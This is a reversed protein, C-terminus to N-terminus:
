VQPDVDNLLAFLIRVLSEDAPRTPVTYVLSVEEETLLPPLGNGIVLQPDMHFIRLVGIVAARRVYGSCDSLGRRVAPELYEVINAARLSCLSKLAIGRVTPDDDLCDKQLTNM